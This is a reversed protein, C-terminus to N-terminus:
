AFVRASERVLREAAIRAGHLEIRSSLAQARSITDPRLCNRLASVIANSTLRERTPGAIGVGLKQVRRAWYYQDYLHPVVVQPKGARVAATTTGAGGHHVVAAVRPLLNEHSADGILIHDTGSDTMGSDTLTLNGWGQSIVARLGLARAAELLARATHESARMSGFGFYVPPAGNALFSELPEPLPTRDSLLWAGTQVVRLGSTSPAPAIAPDAALLPQEGFLYRQVSDISGLGVKAREENVTALFLADWSRADRMWLFRNVRTPLSQWYHFGMKPPPHDPSPFTAPCYAAFVCSVKLAEAVSRTAIQLAGGAVMLDCGRAADTLVRFQERVTHVALQHLQEKSPRVRKAPPSGGTLKKL